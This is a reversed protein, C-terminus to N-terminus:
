RRISNTSTPPMWDEVADAIEENINEVAKRVGKGQYRQKDGDRLEV